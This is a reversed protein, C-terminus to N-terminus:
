TSSKSRSREYRDRINDRYQNWQQGPYRREFNTKAESEVENWARGRFRADAVFEDALKEVEVETRRVTDRVTETRQQVDKNVTVEEVVRAQKAVVAEERTATAEITKDQFALNADAATAPRDVRHREVNVREERLNIQEEVPKEVVRTHIRVGGAGQVQRKGVQLQEEIVPITEKGEVTRAQAQGTAARGAAWGETRWQQMRQDLDVVNYRRMIAIVNDVQEDRCVASVITGGRRYAERYGYQDDDDGFGLMDKLSEWFGKDEGAAGGGSQRTLRISTREYGAAILERQVQEADSYNDFVGVVTKAM